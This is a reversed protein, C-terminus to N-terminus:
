NGKWENYWANLLPIFEDTAKQHGPNTPHNNTGSFYYLENPNAADAPSDSVVHEEYGGSNVWHHNNPDTLVNYYDFAYVNNHAYSSLWGNERDALWNSIERTLSASSIEIEPPPVVLIFLKDTRTSFYDLLSNYIDKEDDISSGVESLPYCSKFMVVDVEGGPDSIVNTYDYHSDNAYVDPMVTANFWCPWDPTDTHNGIDTGLSSCEAPVASVTWGYDSETVYYNNSNLETGLGGSSSSIWASGTSHHIFIYKEASQPSTTDAQYSVVWNGPGSPGAPAGPESPTQKESCTITVLSLAPILVAYFFVKKM